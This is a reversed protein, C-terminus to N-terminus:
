VAALLHAERSVQAGRATINPDKSLRVVLEGNVEFTTNDMGEGLYEVSTITFDPLHEMVIRRVDDRRDPGDNM